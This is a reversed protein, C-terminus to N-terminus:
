LGQKTRLLLSNAVVSVSSAAMAAAAVVPSLRLGILPIFLGAAIPLLLGNYLFAWVLNQRITRLTAQSLRIFYLVDKLNHHMLVVDAAEIAVDAGASIALGVDAAALAAADNIGDGVMAVVHGEGRLRDITRQKESPRVEAFVNGPPISIEKAVALATRNADGSLMWVTMGLSRLQGIVEATGPVITDEACLAGLYKGAQAVLLVTQGDARSRNHAAEETEPIKIELEVLLQRNGVLISQDGLQAQIGRGSFVRLQDAMQPASELSQSREVVAVSLPHDSLQAATAATTLLQESSVGEAPWVATIHPRGSTITGTKDFVVATLNGAAELASPHKILIGSAAGRGSAVLVATPTALGLACPCAVVLVAITCALASRGDGDLWLWGIATGAAFVLVFPVFWAIVRDALRQFKTKSEQARRVLEIVEALVTVNARCTVCVTLSGNGNVTGAFIQDGPRRVVPMSEGTLWSEDVESRGEVVRGDLPIKEGPRVLIRNDVQVDAIEIQELRGESIRNATPAALDLLEYVAGSARRKAISELYKGLSVFTLIMVGDVFMTSSAGQFWQVIGAVYAATTGLAVLTDMNCSLRRMRRWAGLLYPGGMYVQAATALVGRPWLLLLTEQAGLWAIALMALLSAVGFIFRNRWGTTERMSRTEMATRGTLAQQETGVCARYGADEVARILASENPRLADYEVAAQETALNVRAVTVGPVGVLAREVRATCSACHMGDVDLLLRQSFANSTLRCTGPIQHKALRIWRGVNRVCLREGGTEPEVSRMGM